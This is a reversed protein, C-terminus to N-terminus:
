VRLRRGWKASSDSLRVLKPPSTLEMSAATENIAVRANRSRQIGNSASFVQV